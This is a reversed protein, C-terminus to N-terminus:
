DTNPDEVMYFMVIKAAIRIRIIAEEGELSSIFKHKFRRDVFLGTKKAM